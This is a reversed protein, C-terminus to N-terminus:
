GSAVPEITPQHQRIRRSASAPQSSERVSKAANHEIGAVCGDALRVVRDAIAAIAANHTTPRQNGPGVRAGSARPPGPHWAHFRVGRGMLVNLTEGPMVTPADSRVLGITRAIAHV